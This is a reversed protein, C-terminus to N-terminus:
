HGPPDMYPTRVAGFVQPPTAGRYASRVESEFTRQREDMILLQKRVDSLTDQIGKLASKVEVMQLNLNNYDQRLTSLAQRTEGLQAKLAAIEYAMETSRQVQATLWLFGPILTVVIVDRVRTWLEPTIHIAKPDASAAM